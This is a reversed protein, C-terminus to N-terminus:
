PLFTKLGLVQCIIKLSLDESGRQKRKLKEPLCFSNLCDVKHCVIHNDLLLFVLCVRELAINQNRILFRACLMFLILSIGLHVLLYLTKDSM